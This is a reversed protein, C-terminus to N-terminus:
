SPPQKMNIVRRRPDSTVRASTLHDKKKKTEHSHRPFHFYNEREEEHKSFISQIRLDHLM